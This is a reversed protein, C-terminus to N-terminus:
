PKCCIKGTDCTGSVRARNNPCTARSSTTVPTECKNPLDCTGTTGGGSSGSSGSSGGRCCYDFCTAPVRTNLVKECADLLTGEAAGGPHYNTIKFLNKDNVKPADTIVCGKNMLIQCGRSLAATDGISSIGGGGSFLFFAAVAALVVIAIIIVIVVEVPMSLAKRHM